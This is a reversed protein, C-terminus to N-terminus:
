SRSLKLKETPLEDEIGIFYTKFGFKKLLNRSAKNDPDIIGILDLNPAILEAKNLLLKCIATGYGKGWFEEKLIYGIELLNHDYKYYALKTDGIYIDDSNFVKFYGLDPNENNTAIITDFKKRAEEQSLGKGSVYKMVTDNKVLSYYTDFETAKPKVLYITPTNKQPLM